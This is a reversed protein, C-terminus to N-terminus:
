NKSNIIGINVVKKQKKDVVLSFTSFDYFDYKTNLKEVKYDAGYVKIAKDLPLDQPTLSIWNLLGNNFILIVNKYQSKAKGLERELTYTSKLTDESQYPKLDPYQGNFDTELTYGPKLNLFNVKNLYQWAPIKNGLNLTNELTINPIPLSFLTINKAWKHKKDTSINFFGYDYYDLTQSYSTNIDKPKGYLEIFKTMNIEQTLTYEIWDLKNNKFGVRVRNYIAEKPATTIFIEYDKVKKQPHSKTLQSFEEITTKGFGLAKLRFGFIDQYDLINDSFTCASNLLMVAFLFIILSVFNKKM